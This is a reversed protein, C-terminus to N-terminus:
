DPSRFDLNLYSGLTKNPHVSQTSLIFVILLSENKSHTIECPIVWLQLILPDESGLGGRFSHNYSLTFQLLYIKTAYFGIFTLHISYKFIM